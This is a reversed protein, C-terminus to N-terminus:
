YILPLVCYFTINLTRYKKVRYPYNNNLCNVLIGIFCNGKSIEILSPGNPFWNAIEEM